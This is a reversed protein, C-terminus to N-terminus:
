AVCSCRNGRLLLLQEQVGATVLRDLVDRNPGLSVGMTHGVQGIAAEAQWRADGVSLGADEEVALGQAPDGFLDTDLELWDETPGRDVLQRVNHTPM